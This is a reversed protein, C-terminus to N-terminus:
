LALRVVKLCVFVFIRVHMCVHMCVPMWRVNVAAVSGVSKLAPSSCSFPNGPHACSAGKLTAFGDFMGTHGCAVCVCMGALTLV